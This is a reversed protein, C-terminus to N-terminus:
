LELIHFLAGTGKKGNVEVLDYDRLVIKQKSAFGKNNESEHIRWKKYITPDVYIDGIIGRLIFPIYNTSLLISEINEELYDEDILKYKEDYSISVM